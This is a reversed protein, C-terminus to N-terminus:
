PSPSRNLASKILKFLFYLGFAALILVFLSGWFIYIAYPILLVLLAGLLYRFPNSYFVYANGGSKLLRVLRYWMILDQNTQSNIHDVDPRLCHNMDVIASGKKNM